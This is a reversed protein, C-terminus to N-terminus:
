SFRGESASFVTHNDPESCASPNWSPSDGSTTAFTSPTSSPQPCISSLHAFSTWWTSRDALRFISLMISRLAKLCRKDLVILPENSIKKFKPDISYTHHTSRFLSARPPKSEKGRIGFCFAFSAEFSCVAFSTLRVATCVTCLSQCTPLGCAGETM